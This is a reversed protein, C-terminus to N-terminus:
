GRLRRLSQPHPLRGARRTQHAGPVHVRQGPRQVASRGCRVLRHTQGERHYDRIGMGERATERRHRRVDGLDYARKGGQHFLGQVRRHHRCYGQPWHGPRYMSRRHVAIFLHRLSLHRPRPGAPDGPRRGPPHEAGKDLAEQVILETPRIHDKLREGWGVCKDYVEDVSIPEAGYIKTIIANKFDVAQKMRPLFNETSIDLLEGGRIGIRSTKDMYAPGIGRGTTGLAGSGKAEEELQDLLVHYPMILHARESICLRSTDIGRSELSDLESILVDPDVVVGNGIICTTQPWFIGSPVLHLGFEGQDNVVTHGANNGGAYRVVCHVKESLYDVVKGKGEDGWQGGIVAFAPM